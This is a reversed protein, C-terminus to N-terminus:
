VLDLLTRRPPAAGCFQCIRTKAAIKAGCECEVTEALHREDAVGDKMDIAAVREILDEDSLGTQECLLDWVSELVLLLRDMRQEIADHQLENRASPM